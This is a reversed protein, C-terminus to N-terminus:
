KYHNVTPRADSMCEYQIISGDMVDTDTLKWIKAIPSDKFLPSM